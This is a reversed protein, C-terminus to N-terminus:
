KIRFIVYGRKGDDCHVEGKSQTINKIGDYMPFKPFDTTHLPHFDM